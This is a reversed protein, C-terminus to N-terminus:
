VSYNNFPIDPAIILLRAIHRATKILSSRSYSRCDTPPSLRPHKDAAVPPLEPHLKVLEYWVFWFCLLLFTYRVLM